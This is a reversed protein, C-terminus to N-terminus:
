DAEQMYKSLFLEPDSNLAKLTLYNEYIIYSGIFIVM